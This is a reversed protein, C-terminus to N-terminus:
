TSADRESKPRYEVYDVDHDYVLVIESHLLLIPKVVWYRCYHYSLNLMSCLEALKIRKHKLIIQIAKNFTDGRKM